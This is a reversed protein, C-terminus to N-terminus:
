LVLHGDSINRVGLDGSTGLLVASCSAAVLLCVTFDHEGLRDERGVHGILKEVEGLAIWAERVVRRSILKEVGALEVGVLREAMEDALYGRPPRGSADTPM